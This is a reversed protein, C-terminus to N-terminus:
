GFVCRCFNETGKLLHDMLRQFTAPAGSLGFSMMNFQLLGLPSTFATKGKDAEAVPLQWYGKMLDPTTLYRSQGIVDLMEDICPMPYADFKIVANLKRFDVCIQNSGDKKKIVVMPSVWESVHISEEVVETQLLEELERVVDEKLAPPLRYERQRVPGLRTM